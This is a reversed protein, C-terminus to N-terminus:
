KAVEAWYADRQTLRQMDARLSREAVEAAVSGFGVVCVAWLALFVPFRM